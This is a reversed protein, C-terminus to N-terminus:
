APVALVVEFGNGGREVASRAPREVPSSRGLRQIGEQKCGLTLSSRLGTSVAWPIDTRTIIEATPSTGSPMSITARQHLSPVRRGTITLMVGSVM